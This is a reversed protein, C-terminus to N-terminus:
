SSTVGRRSTVMRSWRARLWPCAESRSWRRSSMRRSSHGRYVNAEGTGSYSKHVLLVENTIPDVLLAEADRTRDPYRLPYNEVDALPIDTKPPRSRQVNPEPVRLINVEQRNGSSDGIDGVYLYDQGPNPGGGIAIAEWDTATVGQLAYSALLTGKSDIAYLRPGDGSDNHTWLVGPQSRSAVLGSLESLGARDVDGSVAPKLTGACLAAFLAEASPTTTTTTSTPAPWRTGTQTM